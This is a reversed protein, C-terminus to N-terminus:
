AGLRRWYIFAIPFMAVCETAAAALLQRDPTRIAITLFIAALLLATGTIFIAAPSIWQRSRPCEQDVLDLFHWAMYALLITSLIYIGQAFTVSSAYNYCGHVLVVAMFTVLFRDATNFRSRLLVYLAHTSTGTLAAHLFNATFLRALAVGGQYQLYYNINEELAFGLGVFAGVMLAGGPPRRHLLWPMFLSALLLKSLEERMGVGGIQYWLDYPFPADKRIGLAVEQWSSILLVPWVSLIGALLPLLPSVWRWPVQVGHLVLIVYWISAALLAVALTGLPASFLFRYKLLAEWQLRYDGMIAAAHQRVDPDISYWWDPQAAIQRLVPVDKLVIALHFASDRVIGPQPFFSAERMLAALSASPDREQMQYAQILNATILPSPQAAKESLAQTLATEHSLAAQIFDRWLQQVAPDASHRVLLPQIDYGALQGERGFDELTTAKVELVEAIHHIQGTVQHLWSVLEHPTPKEARQLEQWQQRIKQEVPDVTIYHGTDPSVAIILLAVMFGGGAIALALRKLFSSNRSLSHISARWGTM